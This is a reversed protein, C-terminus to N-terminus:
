RPGPCGDPENKGKEKKCSPSQPEPNHPNGQREGDGDGDLSDLATLDADAEGPRSSEGPEGDEDGPELAFQGEVPGGASAFDPVALAAFVAFLSSPLMTLRKNKFLM